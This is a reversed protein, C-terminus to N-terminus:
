DCEARATSCSCDHRMWVQRRPLLPLTCARPRVGEGCHRGTERKDQERETESTMEDTKVGGRRGAVATGVRM